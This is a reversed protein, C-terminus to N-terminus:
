EEGLVKSFYLVILDDTKRRIKKTPMDIKKTNQIKKRGYNYWLLPQVGWAAFKIYPKLQSQIELATETATENTWQDNKWNIRGAKGGPLLTYGYKEINKDFESQITKRSKTKDDGFLGLSQFKASAMDNDIFWQATNRVSDETEGTIGVIFSLHQAVEKNWIDHYLKPLFDRGHTGSWAKGVLKSAGPDLSEIGHFVGSMGSEKLLHATNPFRHVLDARVYASYDIKFPLRQTMDYFAQLKIETDNFTDDLIYYNKTGFNEYNYRIEDEIYNMGRIYDLKKKGLHPYQCFRCAFICGRSIDIPLPEGPLICDQQVFRFDDTEINYKPNRANEYHMRHTGNSFAPFIIEGIPADNGTNLYNLYELFIDETAGYYSMISVDFIEYNPFKDAMYGGVVIKINPYEEKIRKIVTVVHEPIICFTGDSWEYSTTSMFTSSMGLIKTKSTIFRKTMRYLVDEDAQDVYDIVQADYGHKRIWHAIKYPGIYRQFWAGEVIGGGWLIVDM